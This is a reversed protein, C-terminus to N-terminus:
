PPQPLLFNMNLLSSSLLLYQLAYKMPNTCPIYGNTSSPFRRLSEVKGSKVSPDGYIQILLAYLASEVEDAEGSRRKLM